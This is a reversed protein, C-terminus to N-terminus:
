SSIPCSVGLFIPALNDPRPPPSYCLCRAELPTSTLVFCATTSSCIHVWAYMCVAGDVCAYLMCVPLPCFVILFRYAHPPAGSKRAASVSITLGSAGGTALLCIEWGAGEGLSCSELIFGWKSNKDQWPSLYFKGDRTKMLFCWWSSPIHSNYLAQSGHLLGQGRDGGACLVWNEEAYCSQLYKLATASIMQLHEKQCCGM